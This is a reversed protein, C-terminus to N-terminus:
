GTPPTRNDPGVVSEAHLKALTDLYNQHKEDPSLADSKAQKQADDDTQAKPRGTKETEAM